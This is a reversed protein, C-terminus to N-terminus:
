IVEWYNGDEDISYCEGTPKDVMQLSGNLSTIDLRETRLPYEGDYGISWLSATHTQGAVVLVADQEYIRCALDTLMEVQAVNDCVVKLTRETTATDQGAEKFCGQIYQSEIVGYFEPNRTIRQTLGRQFIENVSWSNIARYATLYVTFQTASENTFLM